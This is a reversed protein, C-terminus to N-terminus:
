GETPANKEAQEMETLVQVARDRLHGVGSLEAGTFLGKSAGLDIIQLITLTEQKNFHNVPM